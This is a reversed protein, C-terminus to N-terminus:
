LSKVTLQFDSVFVDDIPLEPLTRRLRVMIRRRLNTLGPEEFIALPAMRTATIIENRIKHRRSEVMGQAEAFHESAVGAYMVFRVTSKQAEVPYYSRIRFEGLDIGRVKADSAVDSEAEASEAHAGNSAFGVEDFAMVLAVAISTLAASRKWVESGM